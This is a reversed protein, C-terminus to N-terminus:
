PRPLPASGRQRPPQPAAETRDWREFLEDSLVGGHWGCGASLRRRGGGERGGAPHPQRETEDRKSSRRRLDGEEMAEHHRFPAPHSLPPEREAKGDRQQQGTRLRVLERSPEAEAQVAHRPRHGRARQEDQGARDGDGRQSREVGGVGLRRREGGQEEPQAPRHEGDQRLRHHGERTAGDPRIASATAADANAAAKKRRRGAGEITNAAAPKPSM